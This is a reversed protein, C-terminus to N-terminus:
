NSNKRSGNKRKIVKVQPLKKKAKMNPHEKSMKKQTYLKKIKKMVRKIQQNSKLINTKYKITYNNNTCNPGRNKKHIVM